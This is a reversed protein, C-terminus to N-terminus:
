ARWTSARSGPPRPEHGGGTSAAVGTGTAGGTADGADGSGGAPGEPAVVSAGGGSRVVQGTSRDHAPLDQAARLDGAAPLDVRFRCGPGDNRVTVTGGHAEVIGRVIALGMGAGGTGPTRARLGRWGPEFLRPLDGGPIGGCSDAVELVVRGQPDPGTVTVDIRGGPPTARVANALLNAVVRGLAAGDGTVRATSPDPWSGHRGGPGPLRVAVSRAAAVAAVQGGAGAVVAALDVTERALSQEGSQLRSLDFLDDVMASVHDVQERIRRLYRAPDDAIGDELAEAMVRVGALPTRLDHTLWAVLERRTREAQEHQQRYATERAADRELRHVRFALYAGVGVGVGGGGACAALVIALDHAQLYMAQTALLVAALVAVVSAVPPVLVAARLSRTRSIAVWGGIAAIAGGCAAAAFVLALDSGAPYASM